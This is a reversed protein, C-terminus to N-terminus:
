TGWWRMSIPVSVTFTTLWTSKDIRNRLYQRTLNRKRNIYTRLNTNIIDDWDFDHKQKRYERLESQKWTDRLDKFPEKIYWDVLPLHYQASVSACSHKVTIGLLEAIRKVVYL